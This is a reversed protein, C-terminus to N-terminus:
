GVTITPKRSFQLSMDAEVVGDVDYKFDFTEIFGDCTFVIQAAAAAPSSIIWEDEDTPTAQMFTTMLLQHSSDAPDYFLKFKASGADRLTPFMRKWPDTESHNTVDKSLQKMSAGNISGVLAIATGNLSLTTNIAAIPTAM